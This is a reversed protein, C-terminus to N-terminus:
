PLPTYKVLFLSIIWSCGKKMCVVKYVGKMLWDCFFEVIKVRVREREEM